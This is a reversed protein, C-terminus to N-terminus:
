NWLALAFLYRWGDQGGIVVPCLSLEAREKEIERERERKTKQVRM